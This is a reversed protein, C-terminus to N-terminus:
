TRATTFPIGGGGDPVSVSGTVVGTGPDLTARWSLTGTTQSCDILTVTADIEGLMENTAPNFTASWM